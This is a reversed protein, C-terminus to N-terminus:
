YGHSSNLRTSKRDGAGAVVIKAAALKDQDWWDILRFRHFRDEQVAGAGATIEPQIRLVHGDRVGADKLTQTDLLQMGTAKHHFKYSMMQGDPSNKPLSMKEVLVVLIRNVPAD